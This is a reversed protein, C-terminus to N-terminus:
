QHVGRGVRRIFEGIWIDQQAQFRFRGWFISSRLRVQQKWLQWQIQVWFIWFELLHRHWYLQWLPLVWFTLLRLKFKELLHRWAFSWVKIIAWLPLGGGCLLVLFIEGTLRFELNIPRFALEAFFLSARLRFRQQFPLLPKLSAFLMFGPQFIPLVLRFALQQSFLQEQLGVPLLGCKFPPFISSTWFQLRSQPQLHQFLLTKVGTLFQLRSLQMSPLSLPLGLETELRPQTQPEIILRLFIGFQPLFRLM